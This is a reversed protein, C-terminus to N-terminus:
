GGADGPALAEVSLAHIDTRMLADLAAYVLRHRALMSKGTFATSVIRLAYHGRGDRAGEHGIHRHSEDVLDLAIPQLSALAARIREARTAKDGVGNTTM